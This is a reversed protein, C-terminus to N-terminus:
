ELCESHHLEVVERTKVLHGVFLHDLPQLSGSHIRAGSTPRFDKGLVDSSCDARVLSVAVAPQNERALNVCRSELGVGGHEVTVHLAMFVSHIMKDPQALLLILRSAELTEYRKREVRGFRLQSM